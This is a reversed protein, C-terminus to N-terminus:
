SGRSMVMLNIRRRENACEKNYTLIVENLKAQEKAKAFNQKEVQINWSENQMEAKSKQILSQQEKENHKM